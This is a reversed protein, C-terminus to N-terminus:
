SMRCVRNTLSITDLANEAASGATENGKARRLAQRMDQPLQTAARRILEVFEDTLDITKYDM